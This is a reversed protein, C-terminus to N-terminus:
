EVTVSKALNRPKDVDYGKSVGLHYSLLQLPVTTLLPTLMEHTKPVFFTDTAVEAVKRDGETAIALIPGQRARIEEMNSLTKDRIMDDPVVAVTPFNEDIMAIPGHKMEAANYGEAHLYSIEKLKLAGELAVPASFKRGIFLFDHFAAYHNALEKIQDEQRLIKRMKEPIKELEELIEKALGMDMGRQKGLFLSTLLLVVVQSLFAKTSAVGIEPGAHNYIGADTERAITSGVVNVIGLALMGQERAKRLAALTDATEGSQSVALLVSNRAVPTKKYRFEAAYETEAPIGALEELFYEGLLAAHFATGMGTLVLREARYLREQVEELGGLKVMGEKTRIRGRLANHVVEPGEWIEKHMFHSHGGKEAEELTWPIEVLRKRLEIDDVDSIRFGDYTLVAMEGDELYVVKKTASLVASADSAVFHENDGIALLLPSSNRAAVVKGPDRSSIVAFAWTGRLRRLAEAVADELTGRFCEEVLHAMVETDTESSFRHGRGKLEERLTAYNEIIGNHVVHFAATCDAHPHANGVSPVGHTAWRTHSIGTIGQPMSRQLADELQAVRGVKRLVKADHTSGDQVAIGASDYGRYELRKLGDLLIPAAERKGAYGVIGCM